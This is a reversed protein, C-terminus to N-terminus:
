SNLSKRHKISDRMSHELKNYFANLASTMNAGCKMTIEDLNDRIVSLTRRAYGDWQQVSYYEYMGDLLLYNSGGPLWHGTNSSKSITAAKAYIRILIDEWACYHFQEDFLEYLRCGDLLVTLPYVQSRVSPCIHRWLSWKREIVTFDGTHCPVSYPRFITLGHALHFLNFRVTAQKLFLSHILVRYGVDVTYSYCLGKEAILNLYISLLGRGHYTQLATECGVQSTVNLTSRTCGGHKTVNDQSGAMTINRGFSNGCIKERTINQLLWVRDLDRQYQKFYNLVLAMTNEGCQESVGSLFCHLQSDPVCYLSKQVKQILESIPSVHQMDSITFLVNEMANSQQSLLQKGCRRWAQLQLSNLIRTNQLCKLSKLLALRDTNSCLFRMTTHVDFYNGAFGYQLCGEEIDGLLLRICTLTRRYVKCIYELSDLPDM